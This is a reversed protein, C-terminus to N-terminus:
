IIANEDLCVFPSIIRLHAYDQVQLPFDNTYLSTTTKRKHGVIQATVREDVLLQQARDIFTYRASKPRMEVSLGLDRCVKRFRRNFNSLFNKYNSAKYIPVLYPACDYKKLIKWAVPPILLNCAVKSRGKNRNFIARGNIIHQDYRLKALVEPDIGGFYFMLLEYDRYNGQSGITGNYPLDAKELKYIDERNAVINVKQPIEVSFKSFPNEENSVKGWLARLSRLYSDVGAPKHGAKLLNEKFDTVMKKSVESFVINPYITNFKQLASWKTSRDEKGLFGIGAAYFTDHDEKFIFAKADAVSINERISKRLIKKIRLKLVDLYDSLLYYDPHGTKPNELATNWNKSVSFYGTRFLKGKISVVIPFGKSTLGATRKDLKITIKVCSKRM